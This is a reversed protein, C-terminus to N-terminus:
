AAEQQNNQEIALVLAPVAEFLWPPQAATTITWADKEQVLHFCTRDGNDTPVDVAFRSPNTPSRLRLNFERLQAGAKIIISFYTSM